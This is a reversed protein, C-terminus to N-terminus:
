QENLAGSLESIYLDVNKSLNTTKEDILKEVSSYKAYKDHNFAWCVVEGLLTKPKVNDVLVALSNIDLHKYLGYYENQKRVLEKYDVSNKLDFLILYDNFETGM